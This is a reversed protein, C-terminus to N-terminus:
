INYYIIKNIKEKENKRVQYIIYDCIFDLEKFMDNIDKIEGNNIWRTLIQIIYKGIRKRRINEDKFNVIYIKKYLLRRLYRKSNKLHVIKM